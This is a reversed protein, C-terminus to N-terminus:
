ILWATESLCCASPIWGEEDRSLGEGARFEDGEPILYDQFRVLVQHEPGKLEQGGIHSTVAALLCLPLTQPSDM